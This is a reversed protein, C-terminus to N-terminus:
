AAGLSKPVLTTVDRTIDARQRGRVIVWGPSRLREAGVGLACQASRFLRHVPLWRGPAARGFGSARCLVM